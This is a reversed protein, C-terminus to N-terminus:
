PLVQFCYLRTFTAWCCYNTYNTWVATTATGEGSKGTYAPTSCEGPADTTWDQCTNGTSVGNQDTSTWPRVVSTLEAGTATLNIPFNITGDLLDAKSSAVVKKDVRLYQADPIRDKANVTTTSLFAVYKGSLGAGVAEGQCKLDAGALGGLKGTWTGNTIFVTSTTPAPKCQGLLCVNGGGCPTYDAVPTFVCGKAPDCADATCTNADGCPLFDAPQYTCGGPALCLDKTCLNGDSCDLSGGGKCSGEQCHDSITCPDGDDCVVNVPSHQCGTTPDCWDQTCVNKDDCSDGSPGVCTGSQCHDGSTCANKDDCPLSNPSHVCGVGSDCSDTTCVNGDNCAFEGSHICAGLHCHDGITCMDGDDCSAKNLTTMCGVGPDCANDTCPDGDECELNGLGVCAGQACKDGVTCANGDDCLDSTPQHTCGTVPDCADETCGNGDDCKLGPGGVCEGGACADGFTCVDNDNCPATNPTQVCGAVQDCSDDTCPNGDNCNPSPGGSCAGSECQDNV